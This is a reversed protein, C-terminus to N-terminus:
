DITQRYRLMAVTAVVVTFAVIAAAEAWVDPWAVGKLMIGRVIRVFHTLPLVEGIAQAWGPMGRFPFMFGSLLINPLFYFLTMQMSQMQSRAITSFTFGVALTAVIFLLVTASLMAFSGAMPVGFLLRAAAFVVLVQMYGVFVYPLIKGIMMELPRVPTALLNELTGRERARTMAMATMMVLTMTLIVGMLGPVVNYATLGEPNYRRHIRLEFPQAGPRLAALPGKLDNALALAPLAALAAVAPGTASPDTADAYVAVAPHEGRLLRKSFDAPFVLAFQVKGSAILAEADGDAVSAVVKFYGTNEAARVISRVLPGNDAAVVATPLGRPDGNIAYGFLVLQMIPVGLMMAFTLRDRRLQVFEKRLVAVIRGWSLGFWGGADRSSSTTPRM